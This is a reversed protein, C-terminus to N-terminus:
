VSSYNRGNFGKARWRAQGHRLHTGAQFKAYANFNIFSSYNTFSIWYIIPTKILDSGFSIYIKAAGAQRYAPGNRGAVLPNPRSFIQILSTFISQTILNLQLITYSLGSM